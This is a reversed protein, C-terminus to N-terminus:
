KVDSLTPKNKTVKLICENLNHKLANERLNKSEIKKKKKVFVKEM